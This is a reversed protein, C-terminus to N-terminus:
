TRADVLTTTESSFPWGHLLIVPRGDPPGVEAYGVDLLGANVQKLPGLSTHGQAPATTPAPAIPSSPSCAAVTAGAAVAMLGMSLNRRSIVM